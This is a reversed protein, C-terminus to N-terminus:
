QDKVLAPTSGELAAGWASILLVTSPVGMSAEWSTAHPDAPELADQHKEPHQLLMCLSSGRM